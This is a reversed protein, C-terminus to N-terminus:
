YQQGWFGTITEVMAQTGTASDLGIFQGAAPLAGTYLSTYTDGLVYTGAAFNLTIGNTIAVTAATTTTASFQGGNISYQFTATAVAGGLIMYIQVSIPAQGLGNPTLFWGPATNLNPTGTVSFTGAPGTGTHTATQWAATGNTLQVQNDNLAFVKAGFNALGLGATFNWMWTGQEVDVSIQGNSGYGAAATNALVSVGGPQPGARGVVVGPATGAPIAYGASNVAVLGGQYITANAAIGLHFSQPLINVGPVRGYNNTSRPATLAAAM